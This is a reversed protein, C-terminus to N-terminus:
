LRDQFVKVNFETKINEVFQSFTQGQKERLLNERIQDAVEELKRTGATQRNNVRILHYGFQTQVPGIVKNLEATQCAQDFEAVMQGQGFTGLHGGAQKGSPCTSKEEAIKTFDDPNDQLQALIAKAEAEDKVLIHHADFQAPLQFQMMNKQYFDQTEKDTVTISGLQEDLLFKIMTRRAVDKMTEPFKAALKAFNKETQEMALYRAYFQKIFDNLGEGAFLQPRIFAPIQELEAEFEAVKVEKGAYSFLTAAQEEATLSEKRLSEVAADNLKFSLEKEMKEVESEYLERQKINKIEKKIQASVDEFSKTAAAKKESYRVIAYVNDGLDVPESLKNEGTTTLVAMIQPEIFNESVFGRDGGAEAYEDISETKALEMFSGGAGIQKKIEKAKELGEVIIQSLKYQAPEVYKSKHDDYHKKAQDDTIQIEEVLQQMTEQSLRGVAMEHFAEEYEETKNLGDKEAKMQLAYIEAVQNLFTARGEATSFHEAAEPNSFSMFDELEKEFEARTLNTDGVVALIDTPSKEAAAVVPSCCASFIIGAVLSIIFLASAPRQKQQHM